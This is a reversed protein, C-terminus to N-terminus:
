AATGAQQRTFAELAARLAAIDQRLAKNDAALQAREAAEKAREEAERAAKEPNLDFTREFQEIDGGALVARLMTDWFSFIIRKEPRYAHRNYVSTVNGKEDEGDSHNL